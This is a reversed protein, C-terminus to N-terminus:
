TIHMQNKDRFITINEMNILNGFALNFLIRILFFVAYLVLTPFEVM